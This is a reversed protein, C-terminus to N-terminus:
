RSFLFPLLPFLFGLSSRNNDMDLERHSNEWGGARAIFPIRLLYIMLLHVSETMRKTFKKRLPQLWINWVNIPKGILYDITRSVRSHIIWNVSALVLHGNCIWPSTDAKYTAVSKRYISIPLTPLDHLYWYFLKCKASVLAWYSIKCISSCGILHKRWMNSLSRSTWMIGWPNPSASQYQCKFWLNANSHINKILAYCSYIVPCNLTLALILRFWVPAPSNLYM